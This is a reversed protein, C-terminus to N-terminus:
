TQPSIPVIGIADVKQAILDEILQAQLAGDSQSVGQMFVKVSPNAADFEKLGEEMRAWWPDGAVKVAIAITKEQAAAISHVSTFAALALGMLAARRTIIAFRSTMITEGKDQQPLRPKRIAPDPGARRTRSRALYRNTRDSGM